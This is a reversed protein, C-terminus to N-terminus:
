LLLFLIEGDQMKRSKFFYRGLDWYLSLLEYNVKVSAKIQSQKIRKKIDKIWVKYEETVLFGAKSKVVNKRRNTNGEQSDGNEKCSYKVM